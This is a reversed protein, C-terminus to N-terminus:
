EEFIIKTFFINLYNLLLVFLLKIFNQLSPVSSKVKFFPFAHSSSFGYGKLDLCTGVKLVHCSLFDSHKGQELTELPYHMCMQWVCLESQLGMQQEAYWLAFLEKTFIM